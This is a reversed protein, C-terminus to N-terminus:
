SGLPAALVDHEFLRRDAHGLLRQDLMPVVNPGLEFDVYHVGLLYRQDETILCACGEWLFSRVRGSAVLADIQRRNSGSREGFADALGVAVIPLRRDMGLELMDRLHGKLSGGSVIEDVYVLVDFADLLPAVRALELRHATRGSAPRGKRNRIGFREPYFVFSSTVPLHVTVDLDALYQAVAKWIPLAGRLPAWVLCRAGALEARLREALRRCGERYSANRHSDNAYAREHPHSRGLYHRGALPFLPPEPWLVSSIM